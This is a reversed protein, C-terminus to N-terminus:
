FVGGMQAGYGWFMTGMAGLVGLIGYVILIRPALIVSLALM